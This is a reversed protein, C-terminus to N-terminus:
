MGLQRTLDCYRRVRSAPTDPTVPSGLSMIFRSGNRRGAAIQRAIEARLAEDGAQELIGVSDLNGLVTMRGNVREVVDAIDIVFGKKSEELALADAGTDLLLDWKGTPNGCFYHISHMGTARIEDTIQRLYPLNFTRYHQPNIMDTMCDEMWVGLAGLRAATRVQRISYEAFRQVAYRVLDPKDVLHLMMGEFGWMYYCTWLPGAIYGLPFRTAGWDALIHQALDGRGDALGYDGTHPDIIWADVEDPTQPLQSPHVSAVEHGTWGSIKPPSLRQRMGTLRDVRYVQNGQTEVSIRTREKYSAGEPLLFWDQGIAEEVERRWASQTEIDPTARVWWPRSSLQAWHDRIFIDEYCIVAPIEPTGEPSFAALMKERGNM